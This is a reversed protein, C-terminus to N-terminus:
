SLQSLAPRGLPLDRTRFKVLGVSSWASVNQPRSVEQYWVCMGQIWNECAIKQVRSKKMVSEEVRNVIKLKYNTQEIYYSSQQFM